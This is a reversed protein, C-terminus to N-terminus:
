RFFTPEHGLLRWSILLAEDQLDDKAMERALFEERQWEETAERAMDAARAAQRQARVAQQRFAEAIGKQIDSM